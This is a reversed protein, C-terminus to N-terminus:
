PLYQNEYYKVLEIVMAGMREMEPVIIHALGEDRLAEETVKGVAVAHVGTNFSERVTDTIGQRKAYEFLYRVQVATTFCVADISKTSLEHCLTEM